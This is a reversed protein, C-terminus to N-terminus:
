SAEGTVTLRDSQAPLLITITTALAATGFLMCFVIMTLTDPAAVSQGRLAQWTLLATAGMYTLGGIWVFAVRQGQRYRRQMAPRTLWWALLPIVQMGHLGVFHPARLDGGQTSWGLFPLGTGGDAVGVSHAGVTTLSAGAELAAMQEPTPGATMLFAVAIGVFSALVGLRLGWALVPDDMRQVLLLIALVLNMVALTTIAAGMVNFVAADFPTSVNFHSTTNRVVQLVILGIEILLVVATVNAVTQVWRRRGKIYTLLWLFTAGYVAASILFKLPKNWGNVGTIIKPDLIMGILPLPLLVIFVLIAITLVKNFSWAQRVLNMPGAFLTRDPQTIFHTSM